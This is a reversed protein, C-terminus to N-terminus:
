GRVDLAFVNGGHRLYVSEPLILQVELGNLTEGQRLTVPKGGDISLSVTSRANVPSYAIALIRVPADAARTPGRPPGALPPQAGALGSNPHQSAAPRSAIQARPPEPTAPRPRSAPVPAAPHLPASAPSVGGRPSAARPGEGDRVIFSLAGVSAALVCIGLTFMRRRRRREEDDDPGNPLPNPSGATGADLERVAKLITSM